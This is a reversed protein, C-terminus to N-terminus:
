SRRRDFRWAEREHWSPDKVKSWGRRSGDRYSGHRDKLVIGERRGEAMDLALAVSPEIVPSLEYPEQFARALLELRERRDQWGLKRLDTGALVPVDFVVFRLSPRYRKSGLIAAMTWQFRGAPLEGDLITGRWLIPLSGPLKRLGSEFADGRLWDRRLGHRNRTEVTRDPQFTLLCRVGDVKPEIAYADPDAIAARLATPGDNAVLQPLIAPVPVIPMTALSLGRSWVSFPPRCPDGLPQM